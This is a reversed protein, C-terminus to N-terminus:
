RTSMHAYFKRKFDYMRQDALMLVSHTDHEKTETRFAYGYSVSHNIESDQEDLKKLKEVLEELMKDLTESTISELLVLFEDGGVRACMGKEAFEESLAGAFSKLLRDGAPHGSNDNVEKLGNLDLSLICFNANTSDLSALQEDCSARNSLGTLNDLYAIKTLAAYEKKQAFSHTMFIFYNLLQSVVFVLCGTPMLGSLLSFQRYDAVKRTSAIIAYTLFTAALVNLGLMLVKQSSSRAKATLDVYDYVILTGIGLISLLYYPYQFHNIHVLNFSHMLIFVLDFAFSTIILIVLIRNNNRPHLSYIITYILPVFLFMASFEVTTSAASPVINDVLNFATLIWVGLTVTLLSCCLQSLVGSSRIYFLISILLFLGGFIIMFAGMVLAYIASHLIVRYLDDFNGMLPSIIDARTANETVFLKITLRKGAYDSPLPIYSYGIGVFEGGLLAHEHKSVILEDDLYIEYACFQTKFVLYPFPVHLDELPEFQNLTVIDGRAFSTGLQHSLSELNTNQYQQGHYTVTWGKGMEKIPYEPTFTFFRFATAFVAITILSALGLFSLLKRM